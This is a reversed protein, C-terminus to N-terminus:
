FNGTPKPTTGRLSILSALKTASIVYRGANAVGGRAGLFANYESFAATATYPRNATLAFLPAGVCQQYWMSELEVTIGGGVFRPGLTSDVYYIIDTMDEDKAQTPPGATGTVVGTYNFHIEDGDLPVWGWAAGFNLLWERQEASREFDFARGAGHNSSGPASQGDGSPNDKYWQQVGLCRYGENVGLYGGTSRTYAALMLNLSSAAGPELYVGDVVRGDIANVNAAQAGADIWYSIGPGTIKTMSALPISGNTYGGWAPDAAAASKATAQDLVGLAALGAVGAVGVLMSRRSLMALAALREIETADHDIEM